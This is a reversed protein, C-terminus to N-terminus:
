CGVFYNRDIDRGYYAKTLAKANIATRHVAQHGFNELRELNNLAWSADLANGEHGTDNAVTAYGKQVAGFFDQAGNMISGGFGGGGGMVFKGNWDEPLLLEFGIEPGIVGAVKCHAAPTSERTVTTITVDPLQPLSEISCQPMSEEATKLPAQNRSVTCGSMFVAHITIAFLALLFFGFDKITKM